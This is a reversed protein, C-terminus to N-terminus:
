KKYTFNHKKYADAFNCKKTFVDAQLAQWHICRINVTEMKKDKQISIVAKTPKKM